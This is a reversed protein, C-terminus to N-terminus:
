RRIECERVLARTQSSTGDTPILTLSNRWGKDAGHTDAWTVIEVARYEIGRFYVPLGCVVAEKAEDITM